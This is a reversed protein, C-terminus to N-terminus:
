MGITLTVADSLALASIYLSFSMKRNHRQVMVQFWVRFKVCTPQGYCYHRWSWFVGLDSLCSIGQSLVSVLNTWYKLFLRQRCKLEIRVLFSLINGTMGISVLIPLYIDNMYDGPLFLLYYYIVGCRSIRQRPLVKKQWFASSVNNNWISCVENNYNIVLILWSCCTLAICHSLGFHSTRFKPDGLIEPSGCNLAICRLNDCQIATRCKVLKPLCNLVHIGNLKLCYYRLHM